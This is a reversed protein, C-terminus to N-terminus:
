SVVRLKPTEASQVCWRTVNDSSKLPVIKLGGKLTNKLSKLRRSVANSSLSREIVQDEKGSPPPILLDLSERLSALATGLESNSGRGVMPAKNYLGAVQTATFGINLGVVSPEALAQMFQRHGAQSDTEDLAFSGLAKKPDTLVGVGAQEGYRNNALWIIPDRVMEGWEPTDGNDESNIPPCQWYAKLIILVARVIELRTALAKTQPEFTHKISGPNECETDIRCCIFRRLFDESLRCNNGTACLLIRTIGSSINNQGMKRASFGESYILASIVQSDWLGVVNDILLYPVGSMQLGAIHKKLEEDQKGGVFPTRDVRKGYAIACVADACKSKGSNQVPAEYMFGPATALSSRLVATFVASLAGSRAEDSAWMYEAFPAWIVKLARLIDIHEIQDPLHMEEAARNYIGTEKDFGPKTVIRHSGPLAYASNSVSLIEPPVLVHDTEFISNVAHVADPKIDRKKRAGDKALSYVEVRSDILTALNSMSIPKFKPYSVYVLASGSYYLDEYALLAHAIAKSSINRDGERIEVSVEQRILKYSGGGHAWSFLLPVPQDLYLIGCFEGGRHEPEIPDKTKALHFEVPNALVDKVTVTRGDELELPFVGALDNNEYAARLIGRAKDTVDARNVKANLLTAELTSQRGAKHKERLEFCEDEVAAKAERKLLNLLTVEDQNLDIFAKSTDLLAEGGLNQALGRKQQLPPECVAGGIFDLRDNGFMTGDFVAYENKQGSSSPKIYGYGMLWCRDMLAKGARPIDRANEVLFYLRQGKLGQLEEDENYIYSSGSCWWVLAAEDPINGASKVIAVLEDRTLVTRAPDYDLTMVGATDPFRFNEKVRAIADKRPRAATTIGGSGSGDVPVSATIAQNSTVEGLQTIFESVSDFTKVAFTGTHIKCKSVKELVGDVLSFFKGIPTSSEILTYIGKM